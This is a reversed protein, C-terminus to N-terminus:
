GVFKTNFIQYRRSGRPNSENLYYSKLGCWIWPPNRAGDTIAQGVDDTIGLLKNMKSALVDLTLHHGGFFKMGEEACIYAQIRATPDELTLRVCYRERVAYVLDERKWPYAAVVRVICMSKHLVEPHTLSEILSSYALYDFDMVTCQCPSPFSEPYRGVSIALREAYAKMRHRVVWHEDSLTTIQSSPQLTAKWMGFHSKCIINRLIVWQGNDRLHPIKFSKGVFVRLVSGTSPFTSMVEIPLPVDEVHLPCPKGGELELDFELRTPKFDTGDWVFLVFEGEATEAVHLVKCVLDFAIDTSISSLLYFGHNKVELSRDCLWKRIKSLILGDRDSTCYRRSAQYYNVETTKGEFLAFSSHKKNYVCYTEGNHVKMEVGSLSIIDGISKVDPLKGIDEAFFNVSIGPELYSQDVIKLTIVYDTGKSKRALGVMSVAAFLNVKLGVCNRADKIPLYYYDEREVARSSEATDRGSPGAAPEM